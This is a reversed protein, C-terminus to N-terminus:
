LESLWEVLERGEKCGVLLGEDYVDLSYMRKEIGKGFNWDAEISAGDDTYVTQYKKRFPHTEKQWTDPRAIELIHHKLAVGDCLIPGWTQFHSHM